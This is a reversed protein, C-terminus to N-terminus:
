AKNFIDQFQEGRKILWRRSIRSSDIKKFFKVQIDLTIKKNSYFFVSIKTQLFLKEIKDKLNQTFKWIIKLIKKKLFL